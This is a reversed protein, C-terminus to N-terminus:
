FFSAIRQCAKQANLHPDSLLGESAPLFDQMETKTTVTNSGIAWDLIM